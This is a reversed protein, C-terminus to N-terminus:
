KKMKRWVAVLGVLGTGMLWAAAPIPVANGFIEIHSASNESLCYVENERNAWNEAGCVYVPRCLVM